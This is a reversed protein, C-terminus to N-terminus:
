QDEYLNECFESMSKHQAHNSWSNQNEMRRQCVQHPKYIVQLSM